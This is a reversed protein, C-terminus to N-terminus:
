RNSSIQIYIHNNKDEFEIHEIINPFFKTTKKMTALIDTELTKDTSDKSPKTNVILVLVSSEDPVEINNERFSLIRNPGHCKCNYHHTICFEKLHKFDRDKESDPECNLFITILQLHQLRSLRKACKILGNLHSKEVELASMKLGHIETLGALNDLVCNLGEFNERVFALTNLDVLTKGIMSLTDLDLPSEIQLSLIQPNLEIFQRFKKKDEDNWISINIYLEKLSPWAEAAVDDFEGNWEIGDLHFQELNPCYSPLAYLINSNTRITLKTLQKLVPKFWQLMERSVNDKRITLTEFKSGLNKVIVEAIRKEFEHHTLCDLEKDPDDDEESESSEEENDTGDQSETAIEETHDTEESDESNESQEYEDDNSSEDDTEDDSEDLKYQLDLGELFEKSVRLFSRFIKLLM